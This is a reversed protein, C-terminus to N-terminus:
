KQGIGPRLFHKLAGPPMTMEPINILHYTTRGPDTKGAYAKLAQLNDLPLKPVEKTGGRGHCSSCYAQFLEIPHRHSLDSIGIRPQAPTKLKFLDRHDNSDSSGSTAVHIIDTASLKSLLQTQQANFKFCSIAQNVLDNASFQVNSSNQDQRRIIPYVGSDQAFTYPSKELFPDRDMLADQPLHIMNPIERFETQMKELIKANLVESSIKQNHNSAVVAAAMFYQRCVPNSGCAFECADNGMLANASRVTTDFQYNNILDGNNKKLIYQVFPDASKELLDAVKKNETIESWPFVPFIPGGSQHCAVCVGREALEITPASHASYNKVVRFEFKKKENRSIVQLQQNSPTHAV